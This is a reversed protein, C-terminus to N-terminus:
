SRRAVLLLSEPYPDRPRLDRVHGQDCIWIGPNETQRM